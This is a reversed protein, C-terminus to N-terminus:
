KSINYNIQLINSISNGSLMLSMIIQTLSKKNNNTITLRGENSRLSFVEYEFMKFQVDNKLEVRLEIKKNDIISLIDSHIKMYEKDTKLIDSHLKFIANYDLFLSMNEFFLNNGIEQGLQILSNATMSDVKSDQLKRNLELINKISFVLEGKTSAINEDITEYYLKFKLDDGSSISKFNFKFNQSIKNKKSFERFLISYMEKFKNNLELVTPNILSKVQGKLNIIDVKSAPLMSEIMNNFEISNNEYTMKRVDIKLSFLLDSIKLNSYNVNKISFLSNYSVNINEIKSSSVDDSLSINSFNISSTQELLNILLTVQEKKLSSSLCEERQLPTEINKDGDCQLYINDLLQKKNYKLNINKNKFFIEVKHIVAKGGKGSVKVDNGICSKTNCKFENEFIDTLLQSSETYSSAMLVSSFLLGILSKKIM